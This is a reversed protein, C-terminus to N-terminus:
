YCLRHCITVFPFLNNPCQKAIVGTNPSTALAFASAHSQQFKSEKRFFMSLEDALCCIFEQIVRPYLLVPPVLCAMPNSQKCIFKHPKIYPSKSTNDKM